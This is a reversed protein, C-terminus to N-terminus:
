HNRSGTAAAGSGFMGTFGFFRISHQIVELDGAPCSCVRGGERLNDVQHANDVLGQAAAPAHGGLLGSPSWPRFANQSPGPASLQGARLPRLLLHEVDAAPEQAM